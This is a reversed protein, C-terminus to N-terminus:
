LKLTQTDLPNIEGKIFTNWSLSIRPKSGTYPTVSHELMSPFVVCQGIVPDVSFMGSNWRNLETVAFVFPNKHPSYFETKGGHGEGDLYLIGSLISNAHYHQHHSQGAETKNFWSETIYISAFPTYKMVDYFYANTVAEIQTRLGVLAPDHLVRTGKSRMNNCNKVWEIKDFAIPPLTINTLTIPLTFLDRVTMNM